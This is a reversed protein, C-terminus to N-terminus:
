RNLQESDDDVPQGHFGAERVNIGQAALVAKDLIDFNHIRAGLM